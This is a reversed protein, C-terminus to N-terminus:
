ADIGHNKGGCSCECDHGTAHRCKASCKHLSPNKKFCIKRTIPLHKNGLFGIMSQDQSIYNHKSVTGGLELHESLNGMFAGDLQIDGSFYLIKAIAM